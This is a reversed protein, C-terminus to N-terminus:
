PLSGNMTACPKSSRWCRLTGRTTSRRPPKQRRRVRSGRMLLKRGPEILFAPVRLQKGEKVADISRAMWSMAWAVHWILEKVTMEPNGSRRRWDDENLSHLLAIYESRVSEMETRVANKDPM